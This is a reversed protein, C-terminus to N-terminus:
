RDYLESRHKILIKGMDFGKEMLAIMKKGIEVQRKEEAWKKLAEDVAKGLIGKGEGVEEKVASRFFEETDDSINVTITGMCFM